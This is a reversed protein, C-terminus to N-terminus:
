IIREAFKKENLYLDETYSIFQNINYSKKRRCTLALLFLKEALQKIQTDYELAIKPSCYKSLISSILYCHDNLISYYRYDVINENILLQLVHNYVNLGKNPDTPHYFDKVQQLIHKKTNKRFHKKPKIAIVSPMKIVQNFFANVLTETSIEVFCFSQKLYGMAHFMKLNKNYGYICIDHDFDIGYRISDKIYGENVFLYIYHGHQLSYVIYNLFHIKNIINETKVDLNNWSIFHNEYNLCHDINDADWVLPILELMAQLIVKKENGLSTIIMPITLDNYSNFKNIKNVPLVVKEVKKIRYSRTTYNIPKQIIKEVLTNIESDDIGVYKGKGLVFSIPRNLFLKIERRGLINPMLEEILKVSRNDKLVAKIKTNLDM